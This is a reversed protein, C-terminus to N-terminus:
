VNDWFDVHYEWTHGCNECVRKNYLARAVRKGGQEAASSVMNNVTPGFVCLPLGLVHGGLQGFLQITDKVYSDRTNSSNCKPCKINVEAM